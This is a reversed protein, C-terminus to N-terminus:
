VAQLASLTQKGTANTTTGELYLLKNPSPSGAYFLNKNSNIGYTATIGGAPRRFCVAAGTAGSTSKNILINNILTMTVLPDAKINTTGFLAGSGTVLSDIVFTNNYANISSPFLSTTAFLDTIASAG